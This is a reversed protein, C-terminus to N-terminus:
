ENYCLVLALCSCDIHARSVSLFVDQVYHPLSRYRTKNCYDSILTISLRRLSFSLSLSFSSALQHFNNDDCSLTEVTDKNIEQCPKKRREHARKLQNTTETWQPKLTVFYQSIFHHQAVCFSFHHSKCFESDYEDVISQNNIALSPSPLALSLSLSLFLDEREGKIM